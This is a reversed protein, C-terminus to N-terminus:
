FLPLKVKGHPKLQISLCEGIEACDPEEMSPPTVEGEHLAKDPLPPDVYVPPQTAEDGPNGLWYVHPAGTDGGASGVMGLALLLGIIVGMGLRLPRNWANM